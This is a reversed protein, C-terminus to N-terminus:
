QLMGKRISDKESIIKACDEDFWDKNRQNGKKDVIEEVL